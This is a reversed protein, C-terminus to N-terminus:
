SSPLASSHHHKIGAPGSVITFRAPLEGGRWRFLYLGASVGPRPYFARQIVCTMGPKDAMLADFYARIAARGVKPAPDLTALLLADPAYLQTVHEPGAKLAATWSRLVLGQDLTSLDGLTLLGV